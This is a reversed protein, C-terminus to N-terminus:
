LSKDIEFLHIWKEVEVIQDRYKLPVEKQTNLLTRAKSVNQILDYKRQIHKNGNHFECNRDYRQNYLPFFQLDLHRAAAHMMQHYPQDLLANELNTKLEIQLQREDSGEEAIPAMLVMPNWGRKEFDDLVSDYEKILKRDVLQYEEKSATSYEFVRNWAWGAYDGITRFYKTVYVEEQLRVIEKKLDTMQLTLTNINDRDEESLAVALCITHLLDEVLQQQETITFKARHSNNLIFNVNELYAPNQKGPSSRELLLKKVEAAKYTIVQERTVRGALIDATSPNYRSPFSM